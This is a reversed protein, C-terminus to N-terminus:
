LLTPDLTTETFLGAFGQDGNNANWALVSGVVIVSVFVVVTAARWMLWPLESTTSRAMRSVRHVDFMVASLWQTSLEPADQSRHARALAQELKAIQEPTPKM